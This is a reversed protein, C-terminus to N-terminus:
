VLLPVPSEESGQLEAPTQLTARVLGDANKFGEESNYRKLLTIPNFALNLATCSLETGDM